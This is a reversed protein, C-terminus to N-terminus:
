GKQATAGNKKVNIEKIVFKTGNSRTRSTKTM